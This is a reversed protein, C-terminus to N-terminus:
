KLWKYRRHYESHLVGIRLYNKLLRPMCLFGYAHDACVHM